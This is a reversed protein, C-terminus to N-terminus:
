LTGACTQYTRWISGLAIKKHVLSLGLSSTESMAYPWRYIIKAHEARAIGTSKSWGDPVSALGSSDPSPICKCTADLVM